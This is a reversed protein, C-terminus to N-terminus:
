EGGIVRCGGQGQLNGLRYVGNVHFDGEFVSYSINGELSDGGAVRQAIDRLIVVLQEKTLRAPKPQATEKSM